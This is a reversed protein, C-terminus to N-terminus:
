NRTVKEANATYNSNNRKIVREISKINRNARNTVQTYYKSMKLYRIADRYRKEQVAAIFRKMNMLGTLGLCHRMDFLVLRIENETHQLKGKMVDWSLEIEYQNILTILLEDAEKESMYERGNAKFGYGIYLTVHNGTKNYTRKGLVCKYPRESFGENSKVYDAIEDIKLPEPKGPPIHISKLSDAIGQQFSNTKNQSNWNYAKNFLFVCVCSYLIFAALIGVWKLIKM